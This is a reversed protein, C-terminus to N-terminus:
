DTNVSASSLVSSLAKTTDSPNKVVNVKKNAKVFTQGVIIVQETGDLGSRIELRNNQTIGTQVEKRIAIGNEVAYVYTGENDRLVAEPPITIAQPNEGLVLTVRAFEGPKISEDRNPILIEVPMTRTNTTVAQAARSIVAQYERGPIVDVTAFARQVGPFKAVDRDLVNVDIRVTDLDMITFITSNANGVIPNSTVVSGPDLWRKTVIGHFPARIKCYELLVKNAEYTAETSKLAAVANDLDQQAALNKKFLSEERTETVKANYYAAESQMAQQYAESTDVLAILQNERVTEGMDTYLKELLGATRSFVNAQLVPIVDGDYELKYIIDTREPQAVVVPPVVQKKPPPPKITVLRVVIFVLVLAAIAGIVINRVNKKM